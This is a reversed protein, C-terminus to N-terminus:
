ERGERCVRSERRGTKGGGGQKGERRRGTKGGRGTKGDGNGQVEMKINRRGTEGGQKTFNLKLTTPVATGNNKRTMLINIMSWRKWCVKFILRICFKKTAQQELVVLIDFACSINKM